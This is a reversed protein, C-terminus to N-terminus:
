PPLLQRFTLNIRPGCPRAQRNIGHKWFTQTPGKMLLLSGHTLPIKVPKLERRTKHRLVLTRTEGLSLSAIVPQAGLEPEDDAHMGMADQEDRYYNLLVSNFVADCNAEVGQRIERLLRTWPLPEFTTGSYTYRCGEDGYWAILRPQQHTKGFLTLSEQRWPTEQQLTHLALDVDLDLVPTTWLWVEADAMPFRQPQDEPFLSMYGNYDLLV